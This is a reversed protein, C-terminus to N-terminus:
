REASFVSCCMADWARNRWRGMMLRGWTILAQPRHRRVLPELAVYGALSVVGNFVALLLGTGFGFSATADHAALAATLATTVSSM